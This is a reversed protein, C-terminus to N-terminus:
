AAAMYKFVPNCQVRNHSCPVRSAVTVWADRGVSYAAGVAM